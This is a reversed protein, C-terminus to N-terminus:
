IATKPSQLWFSKLATPVEKDPYASTLFKFKLYNAMLHLFMELKWLM